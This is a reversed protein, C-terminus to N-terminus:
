ARDLDGMARLHELTVIALDHKTKAAGVDIDAREASAPRSMRLLRDSLDALDIRPVQQGPQVRIALFKGRPELRSAHQQSRFEDISDGGVQLLPPFIRQGIRRHDGRSSNDLRIRKLLGAVPNQHPRMGLASLPGGRTLEIVPQISQQGSFEAATRRRCRLVQM